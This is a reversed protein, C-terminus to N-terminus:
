HVGEDRLPSPIRCNNSSTNVPLGSSGYTSKQLQQFWFSQQMNILPCVRRARGTTCSSFCSVSGNDNVSFNILLSSQTFGDTQNRLATSPCLFRPVRSDVGKCAAMTYILVFYGMWVRAYACTHPHLLHVIEMIVALSDQSVIRVVLVQDLGTHFAPWASELRHLTWNHSRGNQMVAHAGPSWRMWPLLLFYLTNQGKFPSFSRTPFYFRCLRCKQNRCKGCHLKISHEKIGRYRDKSM